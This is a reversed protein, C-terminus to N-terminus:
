VLKKITKILLQNLNKKLELKEILPTEYITILKSNSNLVQQQVANVFDNKELLISLGGLAIIEIEFKHYLDVSTKIHIKEMMM